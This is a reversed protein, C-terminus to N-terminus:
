VPWDFDIMLHKVVDPWRKKVLPFIYLFPFYYSLYSCTNVKLFTNSVQQLLHRLGMSSNIIPRMMRQANAQQPAQMGPGPNLGRQAQQAQELQKYQMEQAQAHELNQQIQSICNILDSKLKCRTPEGSKGKSFLRVDRLSSVNGVDMQTKYQAEQSKYQAEQQQAAELTQQLQHIKMLNQQRAMEIQQQQGIMGGGGGSGGGANMQSQSGVGAASLGVAQINLQNQQVSSSALSQQPMGNNSIVNQTIQGGGMTMTNTQSM